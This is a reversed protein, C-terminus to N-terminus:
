RSALMVSDRGYVDRRFRLGDASPAATLYAIYVPVPAPLDVRQEPTGDPKPATGGFLWRALRPADEVRVCGSSLLRSSQRFAAKEPTDHLYIGLPNPLMFKVAGMVNAPGPLQRVRLPTRGAAVARWDVETPKLRHAAPSWDSLAEFRATRLFGPGDRLVGTAVRTPVLDPPLNWYPNLVAFRILGAMPPTEQDTKGVVVKMRDQVQGNAYLRLEGAAVDVLIYRKGFAAPFARARHLNARILRERAAPGENLAAITARDALGSARLGHAAQFARLTTGLAADFRDGGALGLRERLAAVRPGRQGARLPPGPDITTAPLSSWRARYALAARRLGDYLPNVRELAALHAALSPARTAADLLAAASPPPEALAPDIFALGEGAPPRRLDAAFEVFARSLMAEARGAARGGRSADALARELGDPDYREPDLGHTGAARLMAVLRAAEPRPTDGSIWLPRYDGSRYHDALDGGRVAARLASRFGGTAVAEQSAAAALQPQSGAACGSLLSIAL